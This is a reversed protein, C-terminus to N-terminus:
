HHRHLRCHALFFPHFGHSSTGRTIFTKFPFLSSPLTPFNRFYSQPTMEIAILRKGAISTFRTLVFVTNNAFNSLIAVGPKKTASRLSSVPPHALFPNGNM